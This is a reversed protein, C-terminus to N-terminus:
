SWQQRNLHDRFDRKLEKRLFAQWPKVSYDPQIQRPQELLKQYLQVYQQTINEPSFQLSKQRARVKMQKRRDDDLLFGIAEAISEPDVTEIIRGDQDQDIAEMAGNMVSTIVPLGCVLGELVVNSYSDFHTPHLLVDAAFYYPRIENTRPFVTIQDPIDAPVKFNSDGVLVMRIRNMQTAPLRSKLIKLADLAEYVGKTKFATSVHLFVVGDEPIGWSQRLKERQDLFPEPRWYSFDVMNPIVEIPIPVEPYVERIRRASLHSNVVVTRAGEFLIRKEIALEQYTCPEMKPNKHLKLMFAKQTGTPPRFVDLGLSKGFGQVIDLNLAQLQRHVANAFTILNLYKTAKITKVRHFWFRKRQETDLQDLFQEHANMKELRGIVHVEQGDQLLGKALNIVFREAGQDWRFSTTTM